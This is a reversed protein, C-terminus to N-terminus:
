RVEAKERTARIGAWRTPYTVVQVLGCCAAPLRGYALVVVPELRRVMEQFGDLFLQYDLLQDVNVGV